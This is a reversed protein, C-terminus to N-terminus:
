IENNGHFVPSYSFQWPGVEGPSPLNGFVLSKLRLLLLTVCRPAPVGFFAPFTGKFYDPFRLTSYRHQRRLFISASPFHSIGSDNELQAPAAQLDGVFRPLQLTKLGFGAYISRHCGV